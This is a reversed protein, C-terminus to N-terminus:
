TAIIGGPGVFEWPHQEWIESKEKGGKATKKKKKCSIITKKEIM